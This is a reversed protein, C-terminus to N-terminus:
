AEEAMAAVVVEVMAMTVVLPELRAEAFGEEAVLCEEAAERVPARAVAELEVEVLGAAASAEEEKGVVVLAVVVREEVRAVVVKEAVRAAERAGAVRAAASDAETEEEVREVAKAVVKLEAVVQEVAVTELLSRRAFSPRSRRSAQM